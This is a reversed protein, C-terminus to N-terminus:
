LEESLMDRLIRAEQLTLFNESISSPGEIGIYVEGDTVKVEIVIDNNLENIFKRNLSM